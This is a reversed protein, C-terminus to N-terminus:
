PHSPPGMAVVTSQQYFVGQFCFLTSRICILALRYKHPNTAEKIVRIVEDLPIKTFLSVVDFSLIMDKPEVKEDKILKVFDSSDKIFSEINGVPPGLIKDM